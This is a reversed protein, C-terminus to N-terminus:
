GATPMLGMEWHVFLNPRTKACRCLWKYAQATNRFKKYKRKAWHVLALNVKAIIWKMYSQNFNGFYNAWGRIVPNMEQAMQELSKYTANKRIDNIREKFSRCSKKSVAPSFSTFYMGNKNKATRPRFTYGLFDFSIYEHEGTRNTDKCYVIRTKGSHIELKCEKMRETIKELVLEAGEKTSCHIVGDDAYRAWPNDPNERIMWLDFAYHMFLNALVPSIVGGQPTGATREVLTGDPMQFPAKLWREIYLIVWKNNTHHKVAKMLLEHDINDFLGKIDFEILWDYQWCRKRTVGIAEIASKGPRYGYSDECFIPEVAPEFNMRVVMQAIRDEVTPIGLLRKGGSKKPIEMGRVPKPFYCGSSMRNWLKYLNNRLDVEFEEITKGDVGAAGKNAKVLKYAELVQHRSIKYPKRKYM